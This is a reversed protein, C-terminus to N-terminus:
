HNLYNVHVYVIICCHFLSFSVVSPLSSNPLPALPFVNQEVLSNVVMLPTDM